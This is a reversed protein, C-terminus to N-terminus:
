ITPALIPGLDRLGDLRRHELTSESEPRQAAYLNIFRLRKQRISSLDAALHFVSAASTQM